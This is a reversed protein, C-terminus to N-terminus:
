DLGTLMSFSDMSKGKAVMVDLTNVFLVLVVRASIFCVLICHCTTNNTVTLYADQLDLNLAQIAMAVVVSFELIISLVSDTQFKLDVSINEPKCLISLPM